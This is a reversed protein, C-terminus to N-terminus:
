KRKEEGVMRAVPLHIHYHMACLRLVTIFVMTITFNIPEQVNLKNLIVFIVAGIISASAYFDSTLVAPVEKSFVDRLEVM